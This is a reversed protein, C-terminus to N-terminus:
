PQEKPKGSQKRFEGRYIWGTDSVQLGWAGFGSAYIVRGRESAFPSECASRVRALWDPTTRTTDHVERIAYKVAGDEHRRELYFGQKAWHVTDTGRRSWPQDPVSSVPVEPHRAVFGEDFMLELGIFLSERGDPRRIRDSHQTQVYYVDMGLQERFLERIDM